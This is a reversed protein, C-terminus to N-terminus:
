PKPSALLAFLHEVLRCRYEIPYNKGQLEHAGIEMEDDVNKQIQNEM